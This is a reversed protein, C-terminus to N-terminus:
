RSDFGPGYSPWDGVYFVDVLRQFIVPVFYTLWFDLLLIPPPPPTLILLTVATCEPEQDFSYHFYINASMIRESILQTPISLLSFGRRMKVNEVDQYVSEFEM